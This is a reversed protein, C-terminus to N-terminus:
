KKQKQRLKMQPQGNLLYKKTALIKQLTQLLDAEETRLSQKNAKNLLVQYANKMRVLEAPALQSLLNEEKEQGAVSNDANSIAETSDAGYTKQILEVNADYVAKILSCSNNIYHVENELFFLYNVLLPTIQGVLSYYSDMFRPFYSGVVTIVTEDTWEQPTQGATLYAASTFTIIVYHISDLDMTQIFPQGLPSAIFRSINEDAEKFLKQGLQQNQIKM